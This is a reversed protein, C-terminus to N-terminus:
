NLAPLTPPQHRHGGKWGWIPKYPCVAGSGKSRSAAAQSAPKGTLCGVRVTGPNISLKPAATACDLSHNREEKEKKANNDATKQINTYRANGLAKGDDGGSRVARTALLRYLGVVVNRNQAPKQQASFTAVAM